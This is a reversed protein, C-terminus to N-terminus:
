TPTTGTRYQHPTPMINTGCQAQARSGTASGGVGGGLSCPPRPVRSPILTTGIHHHHRVPMTGYWHPTLAPTTGTHNHHQHRVLASSVCCQCEAPILTTGIHHQHRVPMTGYGLTTNTSTHYRYSAPAPTTSTRYQRLVSMGSTSTRYRYPTQTASAKNPTLVPPAGIHHKTQHAGPFNSAKM